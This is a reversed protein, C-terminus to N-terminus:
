VWVIVSTPIHICRVECETDSCDCSEIGARKCTLVYDPLDRENSTTCM